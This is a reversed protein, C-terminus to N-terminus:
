VGGVLFIDWNLCIICAAHGRGRPRWLRWCLQLAGLFFMLGPPPPPISAVPCSLGVGYPHPCWSMRARSSHLRTQIPVGAHLSCASFASGGFDGVHARSQFEGSRNLRRSGLRLSPFTLVPGVLGSVRGCVQRQALVLFLARVIVFSRGLALAGIVVESRELLCRPECFGGKVRGGGACIGRGTHGGARENPRWCGGAAFM